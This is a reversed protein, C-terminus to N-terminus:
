QLYWAAGVCRCQWNFSRIHPSRGDNKMGTLMADAATKLSPDNRGGWHWAMAAVYAPEGWHEDFPDIDDAEAGVGMM